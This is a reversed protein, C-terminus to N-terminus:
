AEIGNSSSLRTSLDSGAVEQTDEALKPVHVLLPRRSWADYFECWLNGSNILAELEPTQKVMGTWETGVDIKYPIPQAPSPQLVVFGRARNM